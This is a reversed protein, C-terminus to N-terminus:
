NRDDQRRMILAEWKNGTVTTKIGAVEPRAGPGDYFRLLAANLEPYKQAYPKLANAMELVKKVHALNQPNKLDLTSARNMITVFKKIDNINM